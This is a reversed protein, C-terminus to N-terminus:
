LTNERVVYRDFRRKAWLLGLVFWGVSGATGYVMQWAAMPEFAARLLLLPAYVPHLIFIPSDFGELQTVAPLLLLAVYIFSPLLYENISHYRIVAVFGLMTYLGCLLIMGALLSLPNLDIGYVVLVIVTNELVALLTLSALKSLLYETDRLPSVVLGALTGESKELLVIAGVFYFTTINLNLVLFAPILGKLLDTETLQLLIAGWVLVVFLSVYYFGNRVQLVVEWRFTNLLRTM